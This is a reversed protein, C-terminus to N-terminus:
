ISLCMWSSYVCPTYQYVDRDAMRELVIQFTLCMIRTKRTMRSESLVCALFKVCWM